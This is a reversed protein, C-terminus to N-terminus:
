CAWITHESSWTLWIHAMITRNNLILTERWQIAGNQRCDPNIRYRGDKFLKDVCSRHILETSLYIHECTCYNIYKTVVWTPLDYWKSVKLDHMNTVIVPDQKDWLLPQWQCYDMSDPLWLMSWPLMYTKNNSILPAFIHITPIADREGCFKSKSM